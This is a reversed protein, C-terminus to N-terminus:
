QQKALIYFLAVRFLIYVFNSLYFMIGFYFVLRVLSPVFLCFFFVSLQTRHLIILRINTMDYARLSFVLHISFNLAVM